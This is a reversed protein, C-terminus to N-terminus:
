EPMNEAENQTSDEELIAEIADELEAQFFAPSQKDLMGEPSPKTHALYAYTCLTAVMLRSFYRYAVFFVTNM